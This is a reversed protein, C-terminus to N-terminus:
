VCCFDTMVYANSVYIVHEATIHSVTLHMLNEYKNVYNLGEIRRFALLLIFISNLIGKIIHFV